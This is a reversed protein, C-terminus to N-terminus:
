LFVTTMTVIMFVRVEPTKEEFTDSVVHQVSNVCIVVCIRKAREASKIERITGGIYKLSFPTIELICTNKNRALVHQYPM